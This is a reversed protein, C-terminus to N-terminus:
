RSPHMQKGLAQVTYANWIVYYKVEPWKLHPEAWLLCHKESNDEYLIHCREMISSSGVNRSPMTFQTWLCNSIFTIRLRHVSKGSLINAAKFATGNSCGAMLSMLQQNEPERAWLSKNKSEKYGKIINLM